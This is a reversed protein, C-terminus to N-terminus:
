LTISIKSKSQLYSIALWTSLHSFSLFASSITQAFGCQCSLLPTRSFFPLSSSENHNDTADCPQSLTIPFLSPFALKREILIQTIVLQALCIWKLSKQFLRTFNFLKLIKDMCCGSFFKKSLSQLSLLWLFFYLIQYIM